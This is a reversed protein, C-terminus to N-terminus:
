RCKHLAFAPGFGADLALGGLCLFYSLTRMNLNM